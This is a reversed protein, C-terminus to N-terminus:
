CPLILTLVQVFRVEAIARPMFQDGAIDVVAGYRLEVRGREDRNSSITVRVPLSSHPEIRVPLSKGNLLQATACPCSFRFEKVYAPDEGRNHLHVTFVKQQGPLIWPRTLGLFPPDFRLLPDAPTGNQIPFFGRVLWGLFLCILMGALFGLWYRNRM